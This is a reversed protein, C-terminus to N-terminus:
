PIHEFCVKNRGSNKAEYLLTDAKSILQRADLTHRGNVTLCGLSVTLYGSTDSDKHAIELQRINDCIANAMAKADKENTHPLLCIFEEGGYRAVFNNASSLQDRLSQAVRKLCTDGAEHGYADNFAKFSDIDLMIITLDSKVSQSKELEIKMQEDFHRRNAVETLSDTRSIDLLAKNEQLQLEFQTMLTDIATSLESIEDKGDVCIESGDGVKKTKIQILLHSFRAIIFKRISIQLGVFTLIIIAISIILLTSVLESQMQSANTDNFEITLFTKFGLQQYASLSIPVIHQTSQRDDLANENFFLQSLSPDVNRGEIFLSWADQQSVLVLDLDKIFAYKDILTAVYEGFLFSSLQSNNDLTLRERVNIDANVILNSGPRSYYGYKKLIGTNTAHTIRHSEPVGRNILGKLLHTYEPSFSSMDLGVEAPLTAATIFLEANILYIDSLSFEDKFEEILVQYQSIGESSSASEPRTQQLNHIREALVELTASLEEDWREEVSALLREFVEVDKVINAVFAQQLKVQNKDVYSQVIILSAFYISVMTVLVVSFM